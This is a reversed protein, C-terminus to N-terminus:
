QGVTNVLIGDLFASKASELLLTHVLVLESLEALLSEVHFGRSKSRLVQPVGHRGHVRHLLRVLFQALLVALNVDVLNLYALGYKGHMKLLQSAQIKVQLVNM